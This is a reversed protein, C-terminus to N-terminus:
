QNSKVYEEIDEKRIKNPKDVKIKSGKIEDRFMNNLPQLFFLNGFPVFSSATLVDSTSPKFSLLNGGTTAIDSVRDLTIGMNVSPRGKYDEGIAASGLRGMIDVYSQPISIISMHPLREVVSIINNKVGEKTDLDYRPEDKAIDKAQNVLTLIGAATATAVTADALNFNEKMKIGLKNYAVLPFKMFQFLAKALTKSGLVETLIKPTDIENARLVTDSVARKLARELKGRLQPELKDIKVNHLGDPKIDAIKANRIANIDDPSLGLRNMTKIFNKNTVDKTLIYDLGSMSAVRDMLDITMNMGSLKGMTAALGSLQKEGLFAKGQGFSEAGMLIARDHTLSETSLGLMRALKKTDRSDGEKLAGVIDKTIYKMTRGFEFDNVINSVDTLTNVGFWGGFNIYNLLNFGRVVKALASNANPDVESTGKIRNVADYLWEKDKGHINNSDMLQELTNNKDVGLSKKLALEGGVRRNYSAMSQMFDDQMFDTLKSADLKLKRGKLRGSSLKSFNKKERLIGIDMDFAEYDAKINMINEVIKNAAKNADQIIDDTIEEFNSLISERFANVAAEENEAIKNVDYARLAYWNSDLTEGLGNLDNDKIEDGYTKTMQQFSKLLRHYRPDKSSIFEDLKESAKAIANKNANINADNDLKMNEIKKVQAEYDKRLKNIQKQKLNNEQSLKKLELETEKITKELSIAEDKKAKVDIDEFSKLKTQKSELEKNKTALDNNLSEIKSQLKKKNRTISAKASGTVRDKPKKSLKNYEKELKAIEKNISSIEKGVAKVASTAEKVQSKVKGLNSATDKRQQQLKLARDRKAKLNFIKKTYTTGDPVTSLEEQKAKFEEFVKNKQETKYKLEEQKYVSDKLKTYENDIEHVFRNFIKEEEIGFDKGNQKKFDQRFNDFDERFKNLVQTSDAIYDQATDGSQLGVDRMSRTIRSSIERAAPNNSTRLNDASSHLWKIMNDVRKYPDAEVGNTAMNDMAEPVSKNLIGGATAYGIGAGLISTIALAETTAEGNLSYELALYSGAGGAAGAAAQSLRIGKNGLEYAKSGLQAVKGAGGGILWGIPDAVGVAFSAAIGGIGMSDIIEAEKKNSLTQSVRKKLDDLSTTDTYKSWEEPQINNARLVDLTDEGGFKYDEDREPSVYPDQIFKAGIINQNVLASIKEGFSYEEKNEETNFGYPNYPVINM